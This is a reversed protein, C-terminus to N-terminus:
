MRYIIILIIPIILQCLLGILFGLYIEKETHAKLLCRTTAIIGSLLFLPILISLFNTQLNFSKVMFYGIAGGLGLTHLSIKNKKSLFIFIISLALSNSIFFVGLDLATGLKFFMTGVMFFIFILFLVPLKRENVTHLYITKIFKLQKLFLLFVLPFLYTSLLIFLLIIKEQYRNLTNPIYYFSFLVIAIPFHLPHFLFSIFKLIRM